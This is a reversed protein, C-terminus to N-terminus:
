EKVRQIDAGLNRLQGELCYYGRDVHEAQNVTTYGEAVLGALVLGVGGRLDTANVSAGYLKEVGTIIAARDRVIVNAGMKVLEPVHKFRTEFVNEVVISTGRSITQLALTQAQLDTPFGPYPSTEIKPISKLRGDSKVNLIGNNLKIKCSSNKIKELLALNHDPRFNHIEIEGGAMLGAILYTGAIIRDPIPTYEGGSLQSVGEIVITSTGAGYIKAGLSNLFDALDIIEPEKAANIIQTKGKTLTAALIINETAGVSPFDLNVTGGRMNRGDCNIYGHKDFIKVNLARLGKIHLDIPRAGIECGGPYAVRAKRFRGLISGLSFISSRIVSALEHPIFSSNLNSCDVLLDCDNVIEGPTDPKIKGGLNELIKTMNIIDVYKPCSHLVIPKETLICGALIPLYANKSSTVKVTGGLKKGGKIFFKEMHLGVCCIILILLKIGGKIM